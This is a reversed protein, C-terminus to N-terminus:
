RPIVSPDRTVDDPSAPSEPPEVRVVYVADRDRATARRVAIRGVGGELPITRWEDPRAEGFAGRLNPWEPPTVGALPLGLASSGVGLARAMGRSLARIRLGCDVVAVRSRPDDLLADVIGEVEELAAVCDDHVGALAELDAAARELEETGEDETGAPRPSTM